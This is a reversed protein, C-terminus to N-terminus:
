LLDFGEYTNFALKYLAILVDDNIEKLESIVCNSENNIRCTQNNVLKEITKPLQECLKYFALKDGTVLEYFKDISIRRLRENAEQKKNDVSIIWEINQSKKAIIEVLACIDNKNNSNMLHHCFRIYTKQSSSSNMTNHKNKMEIYYTKENTKDQFVVDWGEKPVTCNNLYQFINQHFYGICNNNSKDMQRSIENSIVDNFSSGTVNKDFLLKIPDIINKNFKKLDMNSLNQRYKELTQQVHHEFDEETIFDLKYDTMQKM